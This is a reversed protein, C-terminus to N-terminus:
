AAAAKGALEAMRADIADTVAEAREASMAGSKMQQAVDATAADADAENEISAVKSAWPSEPDLGYVTLPPDVIEGEVIDAEAPEAPTATKASGKAQLEDARASLAAKIRKSDEATIEGAQLKETAETWLVRFTDVTLDAAGARALADSVWAAADPGRTYWTDESPLQAAPAGAVITGGVVHGEDDVEAGLEEPTYHLGFLAEECADRAAETIARAKTMSPFFKRWPKSRGKSDVAYPVGDKITCLEATVARELTWESRFTFGPDDCRTIEAWGMMKQEDYGVRLRHHAKRVLASILSAYAAPKNDIVYIGMMAAVPSLGLTEGYEIAFLVNAPQRRFADPLMGSEALAQAYAMKGQLTHTESRVALAAGTRPAPAPELAVEGTVPEETATSV